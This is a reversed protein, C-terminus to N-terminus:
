RVAAIAESLAFRGEYLAKGVIAGEAGTSAIATLDALSSVGGSAIVPVQVAKVLAELGKLNPGQLMGDTAIDTWIIRRCGLDCLSKAFEIGDLELSEQWGHVVVMSNKTDIGAIVNEGLEFCQKAFKRSKTLASGLIVRTVGAEFAEEIAEASSLGGGLQIKASHAKTETMGQVVSLNQSRGAKAGDLDVVHIWQAGQDALSAAVAVPDDSYVKEKAFDGQRLRVCKGGLLDIAPLILM